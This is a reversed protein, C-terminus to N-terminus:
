KQGHERQKDQSSEVAMTIRFPGSLDNPLRMPSAIPCAALEAVPLTDDAAEPPCASTAECADPTTLRSEVRRCDSPKGGTSVKCAQSLAAARYANVVQKVTCKKCV